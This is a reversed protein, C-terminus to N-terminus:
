KIICSVFECGGKSLAGNCNFVNNQGCQMGIYAQPALVCLRANLAKVNGVVIGILNQMVDRPIYTNGWM